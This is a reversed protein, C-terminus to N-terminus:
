KSKGYKATKPDHNRFHAIRIRKMKDGEMDYIVWNTMIRVDGKKNSQRGSSPPADKFTHFETYLEVFVLNGDVMFDGLELIERTHEHLAKYNAAFERPGHLTRAPSQPGYANDFYEVTIDPAFYSTVADYRMNNFHDVYVLYQERNM